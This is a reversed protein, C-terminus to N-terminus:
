FPIENDIWDSEIKDLTLNLRHLYEYSGDYKDIYEKLKDLKIMYEGTYITYRLSKYRKMFEEM